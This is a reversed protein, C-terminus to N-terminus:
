PTVTIPVYNTFVGLGAASGYRQFAQYYGITTGILGPINPISDLYTATGFADLATNQVRTIPNKLFLHGYIGFDGPNIRLDPGFAIVSLDGPAGFNTIAYNSGIQLSGSLSLRPLDLDNIAARIDPRPGIQGGTGQPTGTNTLLDRLVLPDLYSAYAAEHISNLVMGAGTVIPTASSTGSFSNSYEETVPGSQLTGYGATTVTFGWGHADLRSGYNSFSAKNLSSGDSAGCMVAGSDRVNRDFLGGYSASDLDINGNGAASFVHTGFATTTEVVAYTAPAYECPYPGPPGGSCQIEIVVADGVGVANAAAQIAGAFQAPNGQHSSMFVDAGYCIGKVGFGNDEGVVEGLVATGHDWPYHLPPFGVYNNEAAHRIDEHDDTWGTECDAIAEGHAWGGSFTNGYDADVGLPAAQRYGQLNEFDPTGLPMSAAVPDGGTGVPYALEIIPQSNLYDCTAAVSEGVPLILQFFQTLDHLPKDSREEAVQRREVLSEDTQLWMRQAQISHTAMWQNLQELAPVLTNVESRFSDDILRVNAGHEFKLACIGDLHETGFSTLDPKAGLFSRTADPFREAHDVDAQQSLALSCLTLTLSITVTPTKMPM